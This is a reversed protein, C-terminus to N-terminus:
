HLADMNLLTEVPIASDPLTISPHSWSSVQSLHGWQSGQPWAAQLTRSLAPEGPWPSPGQSGEQVRWRCQPCCSTFVGAPGRLWLPCGRVRVVALVVLHFPWKLYHLGPPVETIGLITGPGVSVSLASATSVVGPLTPVSSGGRAWADGHGPTGALSWCSHLPHLPRAGAERAGLCVSVQNRAASDWMSAAGAPVDHLSLLRSRGLRVLQAMGLDAPRKRTSVVWLLPQCTARRGSGGALLQAGRSDLFHQPTGAPVGLAAGATDPALVLGAMNVTCHSCAEDGSRATGTGMAMQPEWEQSVGPIPRM